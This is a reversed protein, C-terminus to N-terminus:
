YNKLSLGGTQLIEQQGRLQQGAQVVFRPHVHQDHVVPGAHEVVCLQVHVLEMVDIGAAALWADYLLM